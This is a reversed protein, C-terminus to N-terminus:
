LGSSELMNTACAMVTDETYASADNYNTFQGLSDKCWVLKTNLEWYIEYHNDKYKLVGIKKKNDNIEM